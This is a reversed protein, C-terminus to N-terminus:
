VSQRRYRNLIASSTGIQVPVDGDSTAAEINKQTTDFTVSAVGTLAVQKIEAGGQTSSLNATNLDTYTRDFIAWLAVVLADPLPDFGGVYEVTGVGRSPTDIYVVGRESSVEYKGNFGALNISIISEVPYRDLLILRGNALTFEQTATEKEFIRDCYDEAMSMTAILANNIEDDKSTDLINLREKATDLDFLM